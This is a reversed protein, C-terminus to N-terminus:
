RRRRAALIGGAAMLTVAGPTPVPARLTFNAFDSGRNVQLTSIGVLSELYVTVTPNGGIVTSGDIFYSTGDWNWGPTNGPAIAPGPAGTGTEGVPLSLWPTTITNGLADFAILTFNESTSSGGDVDGFLFFTGAPLEGATLTTFDFRTTGVPGLGSTMPGIATFTGQWPSLAPSSWTGNFGIGTPTNVFAVNAPPAGALPLNPGSGVLQASALGTSLTLAAIASFTTKRTM